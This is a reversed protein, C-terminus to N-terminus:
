NEQLVKLHTIKSKNLISRPFYIWVWPGVGTNAQYVSALVISRAKVFSGRDIFSFGPVCVLIFYGM